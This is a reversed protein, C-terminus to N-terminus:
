SGFGVKISIRFTASFVMSVACLIFMTLVLASASLSGSESQIGIYFIICIATWLYEKCTGFHTLTQCVTFLPVMVLCRSKKQGGVRRTVNRTLIKYVKSVITKIL